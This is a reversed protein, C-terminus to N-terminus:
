IYFNLEEGSLLCFDPHIDNNVKWAINFTGSGGDIQKLTNLLASFYGRAADSSDGGVIDIFIKKPQGLKYFDFIEKVEELDPSRALGGITHQGKALFKFAIDRNLGATHLIVNSDHVTVTAHQGKEVSVLKKRM